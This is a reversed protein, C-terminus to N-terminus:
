AEKLCQRLEKLASSVQNKVTQLGIGRRAAIEKQSLGGLYQMKFVERRASPMNNIARRLGIGLEENELEKPIIVEERLGAYQRKRVKSREQYRFSNFCYNKIAGLLYNYLSSQLKVNAKNKWLWFFVEQVADRAEEKCHLRRYAAEYLRSWYNKVLDSFVEVDGAKIKELIVEDSFECM